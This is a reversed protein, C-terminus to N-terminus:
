VPIDKEERGKKDRPEVRKNQKKRDTQMRDEEEEESSDSYM